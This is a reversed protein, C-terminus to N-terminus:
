IIRQGKILAFHLVYELTMYLREKSGIRDGPRTNVKTNLFPEVKVFLADFQGVTMRFNEKFVNPNARM